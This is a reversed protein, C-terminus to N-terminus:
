PTYFGRKILQTAKVLEGLIEDMKYLPGWGTSQIRSFDMPYSRNDPDIYGSDCDIIECPVLKQIERALELKTFNLNPNGCNYVQDPYKDPRDISRVLAGAMDKVSIFNRLSSGQYVHIVGKIIADAVMENPLLNLRHSPSAGISTSFRMITTNDYDMVVNEAIIKTNAYHSKGRRPSSETCVGDVAGYVSITSAFTLPIEPPKLRCITETGHVNINYSELPKKECIDVGVNSALHLIGIIDKDSFVKKVQSASRVDAEIFEFNDYQVLDILSAGGKDLNDFAVVGYGWDLLERCVVSGIFGCSGTVLVRSM